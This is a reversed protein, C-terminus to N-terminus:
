IENKIRTYKIIDIIKEEPLPKSFYFGQLYECGINTLFEKQEATEVGEALTAMNLDKILAVSHKLSLLEKPNTDCEWIMSKDVKVLSYPYKMINAQNSNAKGYDDLSFEINVSNLFEIFSELNVGPTTVTKESLEFNIYDNPINNRKLINMLIQPINEQMCQILSLNVHIREIGLERLNNTRIFNCVKDLVIEGITMISGTREALPIFEEPSIFGVKEDILRVLAELRTYKKEKQSYIPQYYVQFSRKNIANNIAIIVDVERSRRNLTEKTAYVVRNKNANDIEAFTYDIIDLIDNLSHIDKSDKICCLYAWLNVNINCGELTFPKNFRDLIQEVYKETSNTNPMVIAFQKNSLRYVSFNKNFSMFFSAIQNLLIRGSNSGFKENIYRLSAIQVCIISFDEKQSLKSNIIKKFLNRNYTGTQIDKYELPNQLTIYIFFMTFAIGIEQLLYAPCFIQILNLIICEISYLLVSFTQAKNLVKMHKLVIACSTVIYYIAITYTFVQGQGRHYEGLQDFYFCANTLPTSIILSFNFIYPVFIIAFWKKNIKENEYVLSYAFLCYFCPVLNQVIFHLLHVAYNIFLQDPTCFSGAYAASIDTVVSFLSIYLLRKYVQNTFTKLHGYISYVIILIAIIFFAVVDYHIIWRM